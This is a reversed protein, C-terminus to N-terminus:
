TYSDEDTTYRGSEQQQLRVRFNRLFEEVRQDVDDDKNDTEDSTNYEKITVERPKSIQLLRQADDLDNGVIIFDDDSAVPSPAGIPSAITTTPSPPEPPVEQVQPPVEQVELPDHSSLKSLPPEKLEVEVGIMDVVDDKPQHDGVRNLEDVVNAPAPVVESPMSAAITPVEVVKVQPVAQPAEEVVESPPSVSPIKGPHRRQLSPSPSAERSRSSSGSSSRSHSQSSEVDRIGSNSRSHSRSPPKLERLVPNSPSLSRPPLVAVVEPNITILDPVNEFEVLPPPNVVWPSLNEVHVSQGLEPEFSAQEEVDSAGGESESRGGEDDEDPKRALPPPPPPPDRLPPPFMVRPINGPPVGRPTSDQIFNRTGRPILPVGRPFADPRSLTLPGGRPFADPRSPLPIVPSTPVSRQILYSEALINRHCTQEGGEEWGWLVGSTAVLVGVILIVFCLSPTCWVAALEKVRLVSQPVPLRAMLMPLLAVVLTFVGLGVFELVARGSLRWWPQPVKARKQRIGARVVENQSGRLGRGAQAMENQSGPYGRRQVVGRPPLAGDGSMRRFIGLGMRGAGVDPLCMRFKFARWSIQM